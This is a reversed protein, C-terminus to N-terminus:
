IHILSLDLLMLSTIPVIAHKKTIPYKPIHFFQIAVTAMIDTEVNTQITTPIGIPTRIDLDDLASFVIKGTKSM